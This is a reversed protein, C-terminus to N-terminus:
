GLIIKYAYGEKVAYKVLDTPNKFDLKGMIETQHDYITRISLSLKESIEQGSKGAAILKLIKKELLTLAALDSSDNSCEKEPSDLTATKDLM